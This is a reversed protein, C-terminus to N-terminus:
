NIAYFLTFNGNEECLLETIYVTTNRDCILVQIHEKKHETLTLIIPSQKNQQYQHFHKGDSNLPSQENQQYQHLKHGDQKLKRKLILFTIQISHPQCSIM